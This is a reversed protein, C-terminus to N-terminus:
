ALSNKQMFDMLEYQKRKDADKSTKLEELKKREEERKALADRASTYDHRLKMVVQELDAFSIYQRDCYVQCGVLGALRSAQVLQELEPTLKFYVM